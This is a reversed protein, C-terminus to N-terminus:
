RSQKLLHAQYVAEARYVNALPPPKSTGAQIQQVMASAASPLCPALAFLVSWNFTGAEIAKIDAVIDPGACVLFAPADSALKTLEAKVTDWEADKQQTTGCGMGAVVMGALGLILALKAIM